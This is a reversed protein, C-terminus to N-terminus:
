ICQIREWRPDKAWASGEVMFGKGACTLLSFVDRTLVGGSTLGEGLGQM